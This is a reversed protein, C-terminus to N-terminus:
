LFDNAIQRLGVDSPLFVFRLTTVGKLGEAVMGGALPLSRKVTVGNLGGASRQWCPVNMVQLPDDLRTLDVLGVLGGGVDVFMRSFPHGDVGLGGVFRVAPPVSPQVTCTLMKM